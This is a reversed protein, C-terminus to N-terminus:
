TSLSLIIGRLPEYGRAVLLALVGLVLGAKQVTYQRAAQKNFPALAAKIKEADAQAQQILDEIRYDKSERTVMVTTTGGARKVILEHANHHARDEHAGLAHIHPLLELRMLGALGSLLMLVWGVLEAGRAVLPAEFEATQVSLALMGFTLGVLYFNFKMQLEAAMRLTPDDSM